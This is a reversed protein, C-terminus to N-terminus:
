LESDPIAALLDAMAQEAFQRKCELRSGEFEYREVAVGADDHCATETSASGGVGPGAIGIYITGVPTRDTGGGPGAVGTTSVGWTTGAVARVGCVMERATPASVAGHEALTEHDVDLMERKAENSYTVLGREFYSSAGPVDTIKSGLLGGTCSEAVAVMEEAEFAAGLREEVPTETPM